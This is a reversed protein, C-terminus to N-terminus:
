EACHSIGILFEFFYNKCNCILLRKWLFLYLEHSDYIKTPLPYCVYYTCHSPQLISLAPNSDQYFCFIRKRKEKKKEKKGEGRFIM